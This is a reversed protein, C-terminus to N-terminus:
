KFLDGISDMVVQKPPYKELLRDIVGPKCNELDERTYSEGKQKAIDVLYSIDLCRDYHTEYDSMTMWRHCLNCEITYNTNKMKEKEEPTYLGSKFTHPKPPIDPFDKIYTQIHKIADDLEYPKMIEYWAELVYDDVFFQNNYYGKIINTLKKVETKNM